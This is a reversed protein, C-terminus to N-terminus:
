PNVTGDPGKEVAQPALEGQTERSHREAILRRALMRLKPQTPRQGSKAAGKRIERMYFREEARRQKRNPRDNIKIWCNTSAGEGAANAVAKALSVAVLDEETAPTTSVIKGDVVECNFLPINGPRPM